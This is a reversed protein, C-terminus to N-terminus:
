KPADPRDKLARERVEMATRKATLAAERARGYDGLELAQQAQELLQEAQLLEAPSADAGGAAHAAQLAQRADSMEQVPAASCGALVLLTLLLPRFKTAIRIHKVNNLFPGGPHLGSRSRDRGIRPLSIVRGAATL